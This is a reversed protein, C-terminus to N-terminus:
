IEITNRLYINEYYLRTSKRVGIDKMIDFIDRGEKHKSYEFFGLWMDTWREVPEVENVGEHLRIEITKYKPYSKLNYWYYRSPATNIIDFLTYNSKIYPTYDLKNCFGNAPRNPPVLKLVQNEVNVANSLARKHQELNFDATEIHLHFGCSKDVSTNKLTSCLEKINKIPKNYGAMPPSVYEWGKPVSGDKKTHWNKLIHMGGNIELEIGFRRDSVFNGKVSRIEKVRCSGCLKDLVGVDYNFCKQCQDMGNKWHTYCVHNNFITEECYYCKRYQSYYHYQNKYPAPKLTSVDIAIANPYNIISSYERYSRPNQGFSSPIVLGIQGEILSVRM